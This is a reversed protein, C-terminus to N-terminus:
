RERLNELRTLLQINKGKIGWLIDLTRAGCYPDLIKLDGDMNEIIKSKLLRKGSFRKGPEFYLADVVDNKAISLIQEKGKRMIKFHIGDREYYRHVKDSARNLSNTISIEDITAEQTEVIISAIEEATLKGENLKEQAVFLVWLAKELVRECTDFDPLDGENLEKFRGILLDIRNQV